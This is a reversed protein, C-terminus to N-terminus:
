FGTSNLVLTPIRAYGSGVISLDSRYFSRAGTALLFHLAFDSMVALLTGMNLAVVRVMNGLSNGNFCPEDCGEFVDFDVIHNAPRFRFEALVGPAPQGIAGACLAAQVFGNVRNVHALDALEGGVFQFSRPLSM